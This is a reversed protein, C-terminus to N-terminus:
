VFHSRGRNLEPWHEVEIRQDNPHTMFYCRLVEDRTPGAAQAPLVAGIALAALFRLM